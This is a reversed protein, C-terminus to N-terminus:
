FCFNKCFGYFLEVQQKESLPYSSLQSITDSDTHTWQSFIGQGPAVPSPLYILCKSLSYFVPFFLFSNLCRCVDVFRELCGAGMKLKICLPTIIVCVVKILYFLTSVNILILYTCVCTYFGLYWMESFSAHM